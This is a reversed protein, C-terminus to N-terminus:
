MPEVISFAALEEALHERLRQNVEDLTVEHLVEPYRLFDIDEFTSQAVTNAISEVSNLQRLFAGHLVKRGNTFDQENIGSDRLERLATFVRERVQEPNKSEGQIITYGHDPHATHSFGFRRGILGESYLENYLVSSKGLVSQLMVETLVQKHLLPEGKEGSVKDKFGLAFLPVSVALKQSVISQRLSEPEEPFIRQIDEQKKYERKSLQDEAAAIVQAPDLDGIAVLVMNSPHYFTNYCDDLLGKTIQRVSQVTGAIDRRVPHHHYMAALLDFFVRWSPDDQYMSIEQEIIGKEKETGAETFYPDQVFDILFKFCDLFNATTSFLYGTYTWATFANASAGWESFRSFADGWEKAFMQHELFHAIGDPVETVGNNGPVVTVGNNGPLVFSSDNSGYQTMFVAYKKKYDKRPIVRVVLGSPLTATYVEEQLLPYTCRRVEM